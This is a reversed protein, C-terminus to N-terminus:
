AYYIYLVALGFNVTIFEAWGRRDVICSLIFLIPDLGSPQSCFLDSLPPTCPLLLYM